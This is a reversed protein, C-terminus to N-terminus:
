ESRSAERYAAMEEKTFWCKGGYYIDIMEQFHKSWYERDFNTRLHCSICLAILSRPTDDCCLKKNYHVHHVHLKRGNQPTGCEVCQYGFFARVRERLNENWKECYQPGDSYRVSGYWQADLHRKKQTDSMKILTKESVGRRKNSEGIKKKHEDTFRRGKGAISIKKRTEESPSKGWNPNNKGCRKLRQEETEPKGKNWTPKGKLSESIRKRTEKSRKMGRHAAATKRKCEESRPKGRRADSLKKRTEESPFIGKHSESNKRRWEEYKGPDKPPSMVEEGDTGPELLAIQMEPLHTAGSGIEFGMRASLTQVKERRCGYMIIHANHTYLAETM